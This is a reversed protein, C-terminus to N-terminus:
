CGHQQTSLSHEIQSDNQCADNCIYILASFLVMHIFVCKQLYGCAYKCYAHIRNVRIKCEEIGSEFRVHLCAQCAHLMCARQQVSHYCFAHHSTHSGGCLITGIENARQEARHLALSRARANAYTIFGLQSVCQAPQTTKLYTKKYARATRYVQMHHSACAAM